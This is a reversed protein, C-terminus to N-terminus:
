RSGRCFRNVAEVMPGGEVVVRDMAREAEAVKASEHRDAALGADRAATAALEALKAYRDRFSKLEDIDVDIRRLDTAIRDLADAVALMSGASDRDRRSTIEALRKADTNVTRIVLDCQDRKGLRGEATAEPKGLSPAPAAISSHSAAPGGGDPTTEGGGRCSLAPTISLLMAARFARETRRM